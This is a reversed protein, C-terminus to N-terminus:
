NDRVLYSLSLSLCFSLHCRNLLRRASRRVPPVFLQIARLKSKSLSHKTEGPVLKRGGAAVPLARRAAPRKNRLLKWNVASAHLGGSYGSFILFRASLLFRSTESAERDFFRLTGTIFNILNSLTFSIEEITNANKHINYLKKQISIVICIICQIYYNMCLKTILLLIFFIFFLYRLWTKWNNRLM